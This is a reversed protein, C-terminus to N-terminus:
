GNQKGRIVARINTAESVLDRAQAALTATIKRRQMNAESQDAGRRIEELIYTNISKVRTQVEDAYRQTEARLQVLVDQLYENMRVSLKDALDLSKKRISAVDVSYESREIKKERWGWHRSDGDWREMMWAAARKLWEGEVKEWQTETWRRQSTYSGKGIGESDGELKGLPKPQSITLGLVDQLRDQVSQWEKGFLSAVDRHAQQIFLDTSQDIVKGGNKIFHRFLDDIEKTIKRSLEDSEKQSGCIVKGHRDIARLAWYDNGSTKKYEQFEVEFAAQDTPGRLASMLKGIWGIVRPAVNIEGTKLFKDSTDRLSGILTKVEARIKPGIDAEIDDLALVAEELCADLNRLDAQLGRTLEELEALSRLFASDRVNLMELLPETRERLKGLASLLLIVTANKASAVLTRALAPEFGSQRWVEAIAGLLKEKDALITPDVRWYAGFGANAFEEAWGERAPDIPLALRAARQAQYARLAHRAATPYVRDSLGEPAFGLVKELQKCAILRVSDESLGTAGRQDFRNMLITLQEAQGVPIEELTELLDGAAEGGLETYNLVLIVGSAEALQLRVIERLRENKGAENPGPTDVMAFRGGANSTVMALHEFEVEISPIDAFSLRKPTAVSPDVGLIVALRTLDNTRGLIAQIRDHGKGRAPFNVKGLRIEDLLGILDKAAAQEELTERLDEGGKAASKDKKDVATVLANFGDSLPFSLEPVSKGPVHVVRTPFTTMPQDRSPVVESGVVANIVTSKGAKMTGIVAITAENAELKDREAALTKALEELWVRTVGSYQPDESFLGDTDLVQRVIDIGLEVQRRAEERFVDMAQDPPIPRDWQVKRTEDTMLFERTRLLLWLKLVNELLDEADGLTARIPLRWYFKFEAESLLAVLCSFEEENLDNAALGIYYQRTVRHVKEWIPRLMAQTFIDGTMTVDGGFM